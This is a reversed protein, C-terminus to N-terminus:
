CEPSISKAQITISTIENGNASSECFQEFYMADSDTIERIIKTM